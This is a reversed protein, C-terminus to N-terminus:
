WALNAGPFEWTDRIEFMRTEAVGLETCIPEWSLAAVHLPEFIDRRRRRSIGFTDALADWDESAIGRRKGLVTMQRHLGNGVGPRSYMVDYAPSLRWTGGKDMTFAHNKGHDDRVGFSVNFVLRRFAEAVDRQDGTVTLVARLFEEGDINGLHADRNLLGALTHCHLREGAVWDFRKVAFHQTGDPHAAILRSEPVGIGALEALRAYAKEVRGYQREPDTEIKLIWPEYNAPPLAKGYWVRDPDDVAIAVRQKPRAGGTSAGSEIVQPLIDAMRGEVAARASREAELIDMRELKEPPADSRDPGYVLAGWGRKGVYCLRDLVGVEEPNMGARRFREDMLMRGWSDPLSDAFVGFLGDFPRGARNWQIEGAWQLQLPSISHGDALWEPAYQFAIGPVGADDALRGVERGWLHVETRM